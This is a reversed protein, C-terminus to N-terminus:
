RKSAFRYGVGRVTQLYTPNEPDDELKQRLRWVFLKPYDFQGIYEAGWVHKLIQRHTLVRDANEVLYFLVRSETPSLSVVEGHRRVEWQEKNVTLGEDIYLPSPIHEALNRSRRLVAEIRAELERMSFPKVVYDDAGLRLGTIKDSDQSRATLIIIPVDSIGRLRRCVEWGDIQPMMIDLLVIDPRHQYFQRLAELGDGACVARYGSQGLYLEIASTLKPDDDAILVTAARTARRDGPPSLM